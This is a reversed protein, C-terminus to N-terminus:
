ATEEREMTMRALLSEYMMANAPFTGKKAM